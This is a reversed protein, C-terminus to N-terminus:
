NENLEEIQDINDQLLDILQKAHTKLVDPNQCSINVYYNNKSKDKGLYAQVSEDQNKLNGSYYNSYDTIEGTFEESDITGAMKYIVGLKEIM